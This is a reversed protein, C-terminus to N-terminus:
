EFNLVILDGKRFPTEPLISQRTLRGAGHCEVQLNLSDAIYLVDRMGMGRLNPMKNSEMKVSTAKVKNKDVETHVWDSGSSKDFPISLNKFIKGFDQVNGNSVTPVFSNAAKDDIVAHNLLSEDMFFIRDAIKRFVGVASYEGGDKAQIVIICSYKPNDAPFYGCFSGRWKGKNYHGKEFTQATGTKGAIKYYKSKYKKATGDEVVAELIKHSKEITEKTCISGKIVSPKFRKVVKNNKRIERVYHPRVIKGNNAVANYFTLIQMPTLEIDYGYSMQLLTGNEYSKMTPDKMRPAAEGILDVGSKQDLEFTKMRQIYDWEKGTSWYYKDVIRSIGVNSSNAFIDKVSLKPAAGKNHNWDTVTLNARPYYWLGGGIDLTDDLDVYHDEFAAMLASLKITSGPDCREKVAYNYNEYFASDTASDNHSLNSTAIIEGTKVDMVIACGWEADYKTLVNNLEEHTIMQIEADITTVVDDGDGIDSVDGAISSQRKLEPDGYLYKDFAGEIGNTGHNERFTGIVRNAVGGYPYVRNNVVEVHFGGKYAGDRLLPLKKLAQLTTFDVNKEHLRLIKKNKQASIIKNYYYKKDHGPENFVRALGDALSDLVTKNLLDPNKKFHEIRSDFYVAYESVSCALVNGNRDLIDGRKPVVPKNMIEENEARLEPGEVYMIRGVKFLVGAAVGFIVVLVVIYRNTIKKIIEKDNEM